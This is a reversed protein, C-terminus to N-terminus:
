CSESWVGCWATASQVSGGVMSAESSRRRSETAEAPSSLESSSPGVRTRSASRICFAVISPM